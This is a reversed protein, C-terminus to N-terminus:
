IYRRQRQEERYESPSSGKSRRFVRRFTKDSNYGAARAVEMVSAESNKLMDVAADIRKREIYTSFNEGTQEKFFFSLYSETISFATAVSALSLNRDTYNKELYELIGKILRSNHSKKRSEMSRCIELFIRRLEEVELDTSEQDQLRFDAAQLKLQSVLKALTSRMEFLLFRVKDEPLSRLEFNERILSDFIQNVVGADGAAASNLLRVEMEIPYHYNDLAREIETFCHVGPEGTSRCYFEAERAETNSRHIDILTGVTSGIGISIGAPILRRVTRCVEAAIRMLEQQSMDSPSVCIAAIREEAPDYFWIKGRYSRQFESKVVVKVKNLQDIVDPSELDIDGNIGASLVYFERDEEGLGLLTGFQELSAPNRYYGNLLRNLFNAFVQERQKGLEQQMSSNQEILRSVGLDISKYDLPARAEPELVERIQSFIHGLSESRRYALILAMGMSIVLSGLLGLFTRRQLEIVARFAWRTPLVAIYRWGRIPSATYVLLESGDESWFAGTAPTDPLELRPVEAKDRGSATLVHNEEDMVYAYGERPLGLTELHRVIEDEGILFVVAAEVEEGSQMFGLPISQLYPIMAKNKFDEITVPRSPLVTGLHYSDFVMGHWDATSIDPMHFFTKGDVFDGTHYISYPTFITEQAPCYVYFTSTIMNSYLLYSNFDSVIERMLFNDLGGKEKSTSLFRLLKTNGSIQYAQWEVDNMLSEIGARGQDLLTIQSRTVKQKYEEVLAQVLLTGTVLPLSILLIYTALFRAFVRLSVM